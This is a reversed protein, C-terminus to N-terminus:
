FSYGLSTTATYDTSEADTPPVSLYSFGVALEWFLDEWVERRLSLDSEVRYQSFDELLPFITSTFNFSGEPVLNRHQYRVQIRGEAETTSDDEGTFVSQAGQVGATVSLLSSNNQVLYRGMAGGVSTRSAIGLEDNREWSTFWDTFWRNGRFRQYNFNVNQRATDAENPQSTTSSNLRLGVLYARARYSVDTALNATTIGSSKQTQIGFSFSGDLRSIFSEETEIPTIRVVRPSEFVRNGDFTDVEIHFRSETPLLRGFYRTGDTLEVQFTQPSVVNVIDEWDINVTGMSDTSYRLRGFELSKVEGTVSNGNILVVTDLKQAQAPLVALCSLLLLLFGPCKLNRKMLSSSTPM